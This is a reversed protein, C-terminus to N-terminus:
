YFSLFFAECFLNFVYFAPKVEFSRNVDKPIIMKKNSSGDPNDLSLTNKCCLLHYWRLRSSPFHPQLSAPSMGCTACNKVLLITYYSLVIRLKSNNRLIFDSILHNTQFFCVCWCVTQEFCNANLYRNLKGILCHSQVAM